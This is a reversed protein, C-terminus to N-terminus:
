GSSEKKELQDKGTRDLWEPLMDETVVPRIGERESEWLRLHM